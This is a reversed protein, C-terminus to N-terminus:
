PAANSILVSYSEIFHLHDEDHEQAMGTRHMIDATYSSSELSLSHRHLGYTPTRGAQDIGNGYIRDLIAACRDFGSTTAYEMRAFVHLRISLDIVDINFGDQQQAGDVDFVIYPKTETTFTPPAFYARIGSVLEAGTALLGGSGTDSTLRKYVAVWVPVLNM